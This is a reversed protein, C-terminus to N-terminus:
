KIKKNTDDGETTISGITLLISNFSLRKKAQLDKSMDVNENIEFVELNPAYYFSSSSLKHKVIEAVQLNYFDKLIVCLCQRDWDNTLEGAMYRSNIQLNTPPEVFEIVMSVVTDSRVIRVVTM